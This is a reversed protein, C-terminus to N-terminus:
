LVQWRGQPKRGPDVEFWSQVVTIAGGVLLWAAVLWLAIDLRRQPIPIWDGLSGLCPCGRSLHGFAFCIRYAIFEGGLIGGGLGGLWRDRSWFGLLAVGVEVCAASAMLWGNPIMWLPDRAALIRGGHVLTALKASAATALVFAASYIYFKVFAPGVLATKVCLNNM